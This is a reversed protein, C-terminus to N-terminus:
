DQASVTQPSRLLSYTFGAGVTFNLKDRLLPSDANASGTLSSLQGFTFVTLRDFFLRSVTATLSSEVLGAKAEYAPRDVRAFPPQVEYFYRTLSKTAISSGITFSSTWPSGGVREQAYTLEPAFRFGRADFSSFDTSAVARVPLALRWTAGPLPEALVLILQPGLELLLDLNPMGERAANGKSDAPLAGGFSLDIEATPSFRYRSRVGDDDARLTRGRYIAYPLPLARVRNRDAGPYDPVTVAAAAVGLEWLPLQERETASPKTSPGVGLEAARAALPLLTLVGILAALTHSRLHSPKM